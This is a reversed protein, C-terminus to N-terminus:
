VDEKEDEDKDDKRAGPAYDPVAVTEGTTEYTGKRWLSPSRFKPTSGHMPAVNADGGDTTLIVGKKGTDKNVVVNGRGTTRWTEELKQKKNPIYEYGVHEELSHIIKDCENKSKNCLSKACEKINKSNCNKGTAGSLKKLFAKETDENECMNFLKNLHASMESVSMQRQHDEYVLEAGKRTLYGSFFQNTKDSYGQGKAHDDLFSQFADRLLDQTDREM